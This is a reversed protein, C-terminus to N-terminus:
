KHARIVLVIPLGQWQRYFKDSGPFAETLEVGVRLERVTDITLKAALAAEAHSAISFSRHPVTCSQGDKDKFSRRLGARAAEPHFDSYLVVGDRNLVRAIEALWQHIGIAHGVALGSIVVDFLGSCFPLHMMCARVRNAVSVQRLMAASFDLAVVDAAGSEALLKAYRGSGCALDLARRNAVKPWQELMANQEARMLPNHAFPPYDHAWRDYAALTAQPVAAGEAAPASV